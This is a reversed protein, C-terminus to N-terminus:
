RLKLPICLTSVLGAEPLLSHMFYIHWNIKFSPCALRLVTTSNSQNLLFVEELEKVETKM